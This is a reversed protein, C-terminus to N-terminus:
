SQPKIVVTRPDILGLEEEAIEQISQLSDLRGTKEELLDNAYELEAAESRLKDTEARFSGHVWWLATLAVTSCLILVVVLVKLVPVTPRIQLKLIKKQKAKEAM